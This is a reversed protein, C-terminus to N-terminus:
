IKKVMYTGELTYGQKKYYERVGIGAIIAMKKYGSKKALLEAKKLLKKGLGKHQSANKQTDSIPVLQGYTHLERVLAAHQLEPLLPVEKKHKTPFRLRLFAFVTRNDKSEFSLFYENGGSAAYHRQVFFPKQAYAATPRHGAERCRLCVCSLGKNKMHLSIIERLNTVKNGAAIHQSPIDRIVRALRVYPPVFSKITSLLDILTETSYPIYAGQKWWQELETNPIVSCPYLKVTDPQFREDSFVTRATYIDKKQNAGPLGPMLHYDVKCGADKLLKTARATDKSTHGRKITKLITDDITQVGLEVRTCGLIRLHLIEEPTIWDPRTEITLGICRHRATENKKQQRVLESANWTKWSSPTNKKASTKGGANMACFCQSIFWERYKKPYASWTGGKIILEIKDAPHGNGELVAIRKATQLYPDFNLTLARAAAPETAIYSKPMRRETPCYVCTGPCGYPMTLNTIIAVGSLSRIKRVRLLQELHTNKKSEKKACLKKYEAFILTNSLIGCGTKKSVTRKLSHLFAPSANNKKVLERIIWQASQARSTKHKKLKM